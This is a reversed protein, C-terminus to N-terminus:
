ATSRSRGNFALLAGFGLMPIWISISWWVLYDAGTIGMAMSLFSISLALLYSDIGGLVVVHVLQLLPRRPRCIISSSLALIVAMVVPYAGIVVHFLVYQTPAWVFFGALALTLCFMAVVLRTRPDTLFAHMQLLHDKVAVHIQELADLRSVPRREGTEVNSQGTKKLWALAEDITADPTLRDETGHPKEASIM